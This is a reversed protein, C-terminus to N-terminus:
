FYRTKNMVKKLHNESPLVFLGSDTIVDHRLERYVAPSKRFIRIAFKILRPSYRIGNPHAKTIKHQEELFYRTWESLSDNDKEQDVM